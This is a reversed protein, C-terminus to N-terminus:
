VTNRSILRMDSQFRKIQTDPELLLLISGIIILSWLQWM